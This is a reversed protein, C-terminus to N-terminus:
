IKNKDLVQKWRYKYNKSMFVQQVKWRFSVSFCWQVENWWVHCDLLCLSVMRKVSVSSREDWTTTKKIGNHKPIIDCVEHNGFFSKSASSLVQLLPPDHLNLTPENKRPSIHLTNPKSLTGGTPSNIRVSYIQPDGHVVIMAAVALCWFVTATLLHLETSSAPFHCKHSVKGGARDVQTSHLLLIILVLIHLSCLVDYKKSFIPIFHIKIIYRYIHMVPM